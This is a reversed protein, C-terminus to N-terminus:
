WQMRLHLDIGYEPRGGKETRDGALDINFVSGTEFRSGLRYVRDGGESLELGSYPTVLGRGSLAPLGWGVDTVLRAEPADGDASELEAVRHEWLQGPTSEAQGWFPQVRLSLGRGKAQVPAYHILGGAGWEKLDGAHALLVHGTVRLTVGSALFSWGLEGDLEAGLGTDGDGGDHRIGLAVSRTLQAGSDRQVSSGAELALRLRRVGATMAVSSGSAALSGSAETTELQAASVEGRIDLAWEADAVIRQNGGAAVMAMTIDRKSDPLDEQEIEGRGHGAMVWLGAGDGSNWGFYPSLAVLQSDTNNAPNDDFEFSGNSWSVALGVLVSESLRRDIGLHASFLDGEWEGLGADEGPGVDKSSIREYDGSAWIGVDGDSAAQGGAAPAATETGALTLDFSSGGLFEQWDLGGENLVQENAALATAVSPQGSFSVLPGASIGAVVRGIRGAVADVVSSASLQALEPVVAELVAEIDGETITLTVSSTFDIGDATASVTVTENPDDEEDEMVTLVFSGTGRTDGAALTFTFPAVATFDVGATATGGVVTVTVDTDSLVSGGTGAITATVTITTPDRGEAVRAPSLALGASLPPAETITLTASSPFDIGAATASVTVTETPDDEEDDTVMLVFSGTGSSAGALLTLTFPAVATFDTGETATGGAVTVTVETDSLVSEGAGAITATVMITTSGSGETVRAPSLVLGASLPPAETITLTASSPFDIGAATASVTVTETPDDEEDETVALVFSGTGSSAGALLTLTFPAVATFDTGATATGGAVTVTVETDSLVSEGAGAITATVMITTSGSGETVSTPSLVLGASLPPTDDDAITVTASNIDALVSINTLTVSFMEEVEFDEDDLIPVTFEQMEGATGTFTVMTSTTTYDNGATATGDTTSVDATVGGSVAIDLTATVTATMPDDGETVTVDGLTITPRDDDEITVTATSSTGVTVATGTLTSLSVSFTEDEEIDTDELITVVVTQMEGVTGAFTLTQDTVATYDEGATAGNTTGDATSANVMFGGSVAIDLTATVTVTGAAEGVTMDALMVNPVDDDTITVTATSSIDVTLTTGTLTSLSVTFTEGGEADADNLIPVTFTQMEDATGAFMLMMTTTTYDSDATATGAATSVTVTFGTGQVANDLTATVTVTGADEDVTENGLTVAATDNDTITVTATDTLDVEAAARGGVLGSLSVSFTEEGEVTSDDTVAVTFTQEEGVPATGAFTLMTTTTTYDGATATGGTTSVMVSFAGEVLTDLTATVTVTGVDEAVTADGLTVAAMDDDTITITAASGLNVTETTGALGSLAVTFTEDGELVEDATISVPFTQTEDETGAFTLMHDTVATYDSALTTGNATSVLVTFGGTVAGSLRATITVMGSEAVAPVTDFSVTPGENDSIRVTATDTITALSTTGSLGVTFMEAGETATDELIPVTIEQMENAMGAFVLVTSTTTYDNGATASGDTTSATVMFGGQVATDLTATVTVMGDGEGVGEDGLTVTATDNDTIIVTAGDTIDVLTTGTLGSLAVTFTEAVDVTSDDTIAVTFEQEENATGAFTLMTTTTTYDGGAITATGDATSVTVTFGTGQVATDLTATVTVTGADEAVTEDGLTITATDNDNITLTATDTLDLLGTTGSHLSLSLSFTETAEVITDDTILVTFEQTEGATGAFVTIDSSENATYDSAAVATGNATESTLSFGSPVGVQLTATVTATGVGENVTADSLTVTATDDDTITVTATATAVIGEAGGGTPNSLSVVFTEPGEVLSDNMITVTFEQTEDTTGAFSLTQDTVATYDSGATATGGGTSVDVTFPSPAAGPLTVTVTVVGSAVNEAVTESGVLPAPAEDDSITVTATSTIVVSATTNLLTSLFLGFTEPGETETDDTIAVSFRVTENLADGLFFQQDGSLFDYDSGATATGDTTSVEVSFGGQVMKDLTMTVTVAGGAVDEDVTEDGLTVTAVDNDTITIRQMVFSGNVHTRSIGSVIIDFIEDGEVIGDDTIQATFTKMGSETEAFILEMTLTDVDTGVSATGAGAIQAVTRVTVTVGGQVAVDLTAALTVTGIGEDVSRSAGLTVTAIDDDVITVTADPGPTSVADRSSGSLSVTFTEDGEAIADITIPVMFTQTENATGAFNLVHNTVETYDIGATATGGGATSAMVTFAGAAAASLRATVTVMGGVVDEDVNVDDLIVAVPDDEVITITGTMVAYGAPPTLTGTVTIVKNAERVSNDIPLVPITPRYQRADTTGTTINMTYTTAPTTYDTGRVASDGTVGVTLVFVSDVTLEPSFRVVPRYLDRGGDEDFMDNTITVQKVITGQALSEGSVPLMLVALVLAYGIRYRRRLRPKQSCPGGGEIEGSHSSLPSPLVSPSCADDEKAM